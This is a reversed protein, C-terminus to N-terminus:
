FGHRRDKNPRKASVLKNGISLTRTFSSRQRVVIRGDLTVVAAMTGDNENRAAILTKALHGTEALFPCENALSVWPGSDVWLPRQAGAQGLQSSPSIDLLVLEQRSM